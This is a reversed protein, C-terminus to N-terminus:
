QASGQAIIIRREYGWIPFTRLWASASEACRCLSQATGSKKQIEMKKKCFGSKRESCLFRFFFFLLFVYLFEERTSEESDVEVPRHSHETDFVM